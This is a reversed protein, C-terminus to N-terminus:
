LIEKRTQREMALRFNCFLEQFNERLANGALSNKSLLSYKERSPKTYGAKECSRAEVVLNM